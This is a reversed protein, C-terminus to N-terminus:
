RSHFHLACGLAIGSSTHPRDPLCFTMRYSALVAYSLLQNTQHTTASGVQSRQQYHTKAEADCEKWAAALLKGIEGFGAEPNAAKFEARKDECFMQPM